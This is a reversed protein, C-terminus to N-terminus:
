LLLWGIVFGVAAGVIGSTALLRYPLQKEKSRFYSVILKVLFERDSKGLEIGLEYDRGSSLSRRVVRGAAHSQKNGYKIRVIVEDGKKLAEKSLIGLGKSSFDTLTGGLRFPIKPDDKHAFDKLWVGIQSLDFREEERREEM